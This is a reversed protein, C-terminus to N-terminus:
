RREGRWERAQERKLSDDGGCLTEMPATREEPVADLVAMCIGKIQQWREPTM